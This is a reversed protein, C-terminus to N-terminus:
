PRSPVPSASGGESGGVRARSPSPRRVSRSPGSAWARGGRRCTSAGSSAIGNRRPQSSRIGTCWTNKQSLMAPIGSSRASRCTSSTAVRRRGASAPAAAGPRTASRRSSGSRCSSCARGRAAPAGCACSTTSSRSRSRRWTTTPPPRWGRGRPRGREEAGGPRERRRRLRGGFPVGAADARDRAGDVLRGRHRDVPALPRPHPPPRGRAPRPRLRLRQGPRARRPRGPAARRELSTRRGSPASTSGSGPRSGRCHLPPWIHLGRGEGPGLPQARGVLPRARGALRRGRLARRRGRDLRRLPGVARLPRLRDGAPRGERRADVAGDPVAAHPRPLHPRVGHRRGDGEAALRWTRM